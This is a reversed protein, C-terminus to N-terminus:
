NQAKIRFVIRGKTLDYPSVEIKVKDGDIIRITNKRIKGSLTCLVNQESENPRVLFLGRGKAQIVIGELEIMDGSM